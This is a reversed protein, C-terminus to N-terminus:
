IPSWVLGSPKGVLKWRVRKLMSSTFVGCGTWTSSFPTLASSSDVMAHRGGMISVARDQSGAQAVVTQIAELSAPQEIRSVQTRNLKSHIDNVWVGTPEQSPRSCGTPLLAVAAGARAGRKLWERRTLM